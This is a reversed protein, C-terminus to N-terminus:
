ENKVTNKHWERYMLIMSEVLICFVLAVMLGMVLTNAVVLVFYPLVSNTAVTPWAAVKRKYLHQTFILHLVIAFAIIYPLFILALASNIIFSAVHFDKEFGLPALTTRYPLEFEHHACYTPDLGGFMMVCKDDYIDHKYGLLHSVEHVAVAQTYQRDWGRWDKETWDYEETPMYFWVTMIASNSATNAKGWYSYLRELEGGIPHDTIFLIYDVDFRERLIKTNSPANFEDAMYVDSVIRIHSANLRYELLETAFYDDYRDLGEKAYVAFKEDCDDVLVIGVKMTGHSTMMIGSVLTSSLLLASIMMICGKNEKFGVM